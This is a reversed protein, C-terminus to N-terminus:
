FNITAGIYISIANLISQMNNDRTGQLPLSDETSFSVPNSLNAFQKQDINKGVTYQFGTILDQGKIRWSFGTTIHYLDVEMGRVIQNESLPAYDFDKRYNFDTRFGTMMTIHDKIRWRYGIAYNFVSKAGGVFTLWEDNEIIQEVSYSTVNSSEEATVLQYAKIPAFYEASLYIIHKNKSIEYNMGVAVSLPSKSNVEVQKKDKFDAVVYDSIPSGDPMSINSQKQKRSVEKGDSYIKGISPSTLALGLSFRDSKYLAGLKWLLRYDNYNLLDYEIFNASYFDQNPMSEQTPYAEIDVSYQYKLQKVRLFMSAGISWNKNMQWSGGLGFWDDRFKNSYNFLAYYREEGPFEAIIDINQEVSKSFSQYFNENNLFAIEFSWKHNKKPQIMYSLFRPEIKGRSTTLDVGDGLANKIEIFEFSFLSANLSFSSSTIESISAPNYYIASPGSGGGVVAGSLLSSEENFSRTWYNYSQSYSLNNLIILFFVIGYVIYAKIQM